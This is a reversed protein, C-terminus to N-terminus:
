SRRQAIFRSTNLKRTTQQQSDLRRAKIMQREGQQDLMQALSSDRAVSIALMSAVQFEVALTFYSPWYSEVARFIYDAVVVDSTSTDCFIKDGYTDYEIISDQITVASLMLVDSPKQYASSYRGTPDASLRSLVQQNTSFRWRTSTLSARAIDEYMADVVDAESTGEDFSSIPSGGMLISARSCVKIATNAPM